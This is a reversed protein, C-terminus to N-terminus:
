SLIKSLVSLSGKKPLRTLQGVQGAEIQSREGQVGCDIVAALSAPCKGIDRPKGEEVWVEQGLYGGRQLKGWSGSKNHTGQDELASSM